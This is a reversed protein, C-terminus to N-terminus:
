DFREMVSELKRRVYIDYKKNRLFGKHMHQKWMSDIVKCIKGNFSKEVDFPKKGVISAIDDINLMLNWGILQNLQLVRKEIRWFCYNEFLRNWIKIYQKLANRYYFYESVLTKTQNITDASAQSDSIRYLYFVRSCYYKSYYRDFRCSMVSDVIYVRKAPMGGIEIYKERDIIAGLWINKDLFVLESHPLKRCKIVEEDEVEEGNEILADLQSSLINESKVALFPIERHKELISMTINLHNQCLYDDDHVFCIYKTRSLAAIRDERWDMWKDNRFYIIKPSNIQKILVSTPTEIDIEVGENDLVIIEYDDFGVQNLVSFISGKLFNPRNNTTIGVTLLPAEGLFDGWCKVSDVDCYQQGFEEKALYDYERLEKVENSDMISCTKNMEQENM